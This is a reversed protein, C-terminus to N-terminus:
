GIGLHGIGKFIERLEITCLTAVGITQGKELAGLRNFLPLSKQIAEALGVARQRIPVTIDVTQSRPLVAYRHISPCEVDEHLFRAFWPSLNCVV